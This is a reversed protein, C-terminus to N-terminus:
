NDSDVREQIDPEAMSDEPNLAELETHATEPYTVIVIAAAVLVATGLLTMLTGYSMGNDLAPGSILLGISGSLLAAATVYGGVKSRNGTPFLETRYVAVAPYGAGAITGGLFAALWMLGGDSLFSSVLFVTGGILSVGAVIRRGRIDAIRGGVILGIGAPTATALTFTSIKTASYHRVDKLYRNQFFSAPAVFLNTFFAVSAIILFRRQSIPPEVAHPREFRKSEPLRRSLDLAIVLLIASVLYVLRWGRPGLDALPLAMVALGAGLGSAMALVSLAYARANRPMEETAVVAVLVDLALGLPRAITQTVTLLAFSPAAAGLMSCLVGGIAVLRVIRRRGIRDAAVLLPLVLLIGIRVITGAIGQGTRSVGFEDAAFPITQTFLTNLYGFVVSAGALLGIVTGSRQDLRDPPAWWPQTPDQRQPGPPRGLEKKVLLLYVWAFWPISLRFETVEHLDHAGVTVTRKYQRFPGEDCAFEVRGSGAAVGAHERVLDNRPSVAAELDAVPWHNSVRAM